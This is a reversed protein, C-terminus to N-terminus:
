TVLPMLVLVVYIYIYNYYFTTVNRRVRKLKSQGMICHSHCLDIMADNLFLMECRRRRRRPVGRACNLKKPPRRTRLPPANLTWTLGPKKHCSAAM